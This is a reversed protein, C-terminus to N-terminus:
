REMLSEQVAEWYPNKQASRRSGNFYLMIKRKCFKYCKATQPMLFNCEIAGFPIKWGTCPIVRM